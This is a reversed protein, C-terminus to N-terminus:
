SFMRRVQVGHSLAFPLFQIPYSITSILALTPFAKNADMINDPSLLVHTCLIVQQTQRYFWATKLGVMIILGDDGGMGFGRVTNFYLM